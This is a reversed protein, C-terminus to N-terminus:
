GLDPDGLSAAFRLYPRSHGQVKQDEKRLESLALACAHPVTGLNHLEWGTTLLNLRSPKRRWAQCLPHSESACVGNEQKKKKKKSTKCGTVKQQPIHVSVLPSMKWIHESCRSLLHRTGPLELLLVHHNM